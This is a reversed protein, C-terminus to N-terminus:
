ETPQETQLQEEQETQKLYRQRQREARMVELEQQHQMEDRCLQMYQSQEFERLNNTNLDWLVYADPMYYCGDVYARTMYLNLALSRACDTPDTHNSMRLAEGQCHYGTHSRDCKVYLTGDNYRVEAIWELVGRMVERHVHRLIDLMEEIDYRWVCTKPDFYIPKFRLVFCDGEPQLQYGDTRHGMQSGLVQAEIKTMVASIKPQPPNQRQAGLAIREKVEVINVLQDEIVFYRTSDWMYAENNLATIIHAPIHRDRLIDIIDGVYLSLLKDNMAKSGTREATANRQLKTQSMGILDVATHTPGVKWLIAKSLLTLLITTPMMLLVLYQLQQQKEREEAQRKETKLSLNYPCIVHATKLVSQFIELTEKAVHKTDGHRCGQTIVENVSEARAMAVDIQNDPYKHQKMWNRIASDVRVNDINRMQYLWDEFAQELKSKDPVVHPANPSEIQPNEDYAGALNRAIRRYTGVVYDKRDDDKDAPKIPEAKPRPKEKPDREPKVDRPTPQQDPQKMNSAWDEVMDIAQGYVNDVNLKHGYSSRINRVREDVEQLVQEATKGGTRLEIDAKNHADDKIRRDNEEILQDDEFDKRAAEMAENRLQDYDATNSKEMLKRKREYARAARERANKRDRKEKLYQEYDEPSMTDKLKQRPM